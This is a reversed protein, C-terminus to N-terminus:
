SPSVHILVLILVSFDGIDGIIMMRIGPTYSIRAFFKLLSTSSLHFSFYEDDVYVIGILKQILLPPHDSLNGAATM